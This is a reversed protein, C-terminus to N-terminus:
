EAPKNLKAKVENMEKELKEIRAKLIKTKTRETKYLMYNVTVTAGAVALGVCRLALSVNIM